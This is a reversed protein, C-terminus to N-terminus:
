GYLAKLAEAEKDNLKGCIILSQPYLAYRTKTLEEASGVKIQQASGGLGYIAVIKAKTLINGKKAKEIHLLLDLADVVNMPQLDDTKIDLLCLTHLGIKHNEAIPEYFSSPKYIKSPSVITVIRGFKYSDLGTLSLYSQVSIGPIFKFPVDAKKCELLLQIHTTAFLANGFVLLAVNERKAKNILVSTNQEIEERSFKEIRTSLFDGLEQITGDAYQSTYEEFYVFYSQKIATLAERTLQRPNLGIGILYLM